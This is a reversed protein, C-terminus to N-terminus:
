KSKIAPISALQFREKCHDQAIRRQSDINRVGYLASRMQGTLHMALLIQIHAFKFHKDPRKGDCRMCVTFIHGYLQM